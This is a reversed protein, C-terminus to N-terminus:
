SGWFKWWPADNLKVIRMDFNFVPRSMKALRSEYDSRMAIYQVVLAGVAGPILFVTTVFDFDTM